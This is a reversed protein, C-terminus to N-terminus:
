VLSHRQCDLWQDTYEALKLMLLGDPLTSSLPRPQILGAAFPPSREDFVPDRLEGMTERWVSSATMKQVARAVGPSCKLV